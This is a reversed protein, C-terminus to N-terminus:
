HAGESNRLGGDGRLGTNSGLALVLSVPNFELTAFSNPWDKGSPADIVSVQLATHWYM